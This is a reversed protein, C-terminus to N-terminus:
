IGVRIHSVKLEKCLLSKQVWSESFSYQLVDLNYIFTHKILANKNGTNASSPQCPFESAAKEITADRQQNIYEATMQSPMIWHMDPGLLFSKFTFSCYKNPIHNSLDHAFVEFMAVRLLTFDHRQPHYSVHNCITYQDVYSSFVAICRYSLLAVPEPQFGNMKSPCYTNAM